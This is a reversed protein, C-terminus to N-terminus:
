KCRLESVSVQCSLRRSERNSTSHSNSERKSKVILFTHPTSFAWLSAAYRADCKTVVVIKHGGLLCILSEFEVYNQRRVM